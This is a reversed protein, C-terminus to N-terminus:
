WQANMWKYHDRFTNESINEDITIVDNFLEDKIIKISDIQLLKNSLSDLAIDDRISADAFLKLRILQNLHRKREFDSDVIGTNLIKESYTKSYDFTTLECNGVRAIVNENEINQCSFFLSFLIFVCIFISISKMQLPFNIYFFLPFM